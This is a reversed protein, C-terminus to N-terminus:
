KKLSTYVIERFREPKIFGTGHTADYDKTLSANVKVEDLTAGAEIQAEVKTRIDELMLVYSRLEKKNSPRGHGPIIKTDDNIIMLAKKHAEIFGNISGGSNLDIYPYRESFYTDGMHLVNNQMFYVMADGDTHANHVHFAIITEEGDYFTIDQSFTIEPLMKAYDANSMEKTAVKPLLNLQIRERVKDQAVLTVTESNFRANGGSHDGHMHTNFLFALPKETLSSIATKIKESLRDFQDDIMFVHTEGVFIGINGGQGTLMYVNQALTDVTITVEKDQANTSISSIICLLFLLFTSKKKM